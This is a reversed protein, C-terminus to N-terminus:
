VGRLTIYFSASAGVAENFTILVDVPGVLPETVNYLNTTNEAIGSASTFVTNDKSDAITVTATLDNNATNPSKYIIKQLVGNMDITATATTDATVCAYTIYKEWVPEQRAGRHDLTTYTGTCTSM